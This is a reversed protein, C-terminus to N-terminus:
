REPPDRLGNSFSMRSVISAPQSIRAALVRRKARLTSTAICIGHLKKLAAECLLDPNREGTKALEVIQKAIIGDALDDTLGLSVRTMELAVALVRKTEPDADFEDLYPTISM